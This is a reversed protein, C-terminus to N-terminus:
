ALLIPVSPATARASPSFDQLLRCNTHYQLHLPEPQHVLTKCYLHSQSISDQLLRCRRSVVNTSFLQYLLEDLADKEIDVDIVSEDGASSYSQDVLLLERTVSIVLNQIEGDSVSKM